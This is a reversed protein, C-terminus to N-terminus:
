RRRPGYVLLVYVILLNVAIAVLSWAPYAEIAGIHSLVNLLAVGIGLWVGIPRDFLVLLGAVGQLTALLLLAVGWAVNGGVPLDNTDLWNAHALSAVAWVGTILSALLLLAAVVLLSSAGHRAESHYRFEDPDSPRSMVGLSGGQPRERMAWM